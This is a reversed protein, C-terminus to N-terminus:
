TPMDNSEPSTTVSAIAETLPRTASPRKTDTIPGLPQPLLVRSSM